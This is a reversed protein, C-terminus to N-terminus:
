LYFLFHTWRKKVANTKRNGKSKKGKKNKEEKQKRKNKKLKNRRAEVGVQRKNKILLSFKSSFLETSICTM